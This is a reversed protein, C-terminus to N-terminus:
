KKQGLKELRLADFYNRVYDQQSVPIKQKKLADLAYEAYSQTVDAYEAAAQGKPPDGKMSYAGVYKGKGLPTKVKSKQSATDEPREPPEGGQGQGEGGTGPGDGKGKGQGQGEGEGEGESGEWGPKQGKGKGKGLGGECDGTGDCGEGDEGKKKQKKGCSPCNKDGKALADALDELDKLADALAEADKQADDLGELQEQLGDLKEENEQELGKQADALKKEVEDLGKGALKEALADMQKRLKDKQEPTLKGEQLANRMKALEKAAADFKGAKLLQGLEGAEGADKQMAQQIKEAMALARGAEDKMKKLEDSLQNLAALAQKPDSPPTKEFEQVLADIKKVIQKVGASQAEGKELEKKKDQLKQLAEAVKKRDEGQKRGAETSGALDLPPLFWALGATLLLAPPILKLEAPARLPLLSSVSTRGLLSVTDALLAAEMPNSPKGVALASSLREKWGARGDVVGAAVLLPIGPVFAALLGVVLAAAGLGILGPVVPLPWAFLKHVVVAALALLTAHFLARLTWEVGRVFALRAKARRAFRILLAREDTM